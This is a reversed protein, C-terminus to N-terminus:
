GISLLFKIYSINPSTCIGSIACVSRATAGAELNLKAAASETGKLFRNSTWAGAVQPVNKEQCLIVLRRTVWAGNCRQNGVGHQLGPFGLDVDGFFQSSGKLAPLRNAILCIGAFVRIIFIGKCSLDNKIEGTNKYFFCRSNTDPLFLFLRHRHNFAYFYRYWQGSSVPAKIFSLYSFSFSWRYM